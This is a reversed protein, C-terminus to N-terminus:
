VFTANTEALIPALQVRRLDELEQHKVTLATQAEDARQFAMAISSSAKELEQQAKKMADEATSGMSKFREARSEADLIDKNVRKLEDRAYKIWAEVIPL